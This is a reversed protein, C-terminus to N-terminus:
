VKVATPYKKIDVLKTMCESIKLFKLLNVIGIIYMNGQIYGNNVFIDYNLSSRLFISVHISSLYSLTSASVSASVSM